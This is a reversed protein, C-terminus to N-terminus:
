HLFTVGLSFAGRGRGCLLELSPRGELRDSDLHSRKVTEYYWRGSTRGKHDSRATGYKNTISSLGWWAAFEESTTLRTEFKRTAGYQKISTESEVLPDALREAGSLVLPFTQECRLM